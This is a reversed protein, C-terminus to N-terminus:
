GYMKRDINDMYKKTEVNWDVEDFNVSSFDIPLNAAKSSSGLVIQATIEKQKKIEADKEELQKNLEEIKIDYKTTLGELVKDFKDSMLQLKDDIINGVSNNKLIQSDINDTSFKEPEKTAVLNDSSYEKLDKTDIDDTAENETM